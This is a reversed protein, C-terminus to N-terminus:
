WWGTRRHHEDPCHDSRAPRQRRQGGPDRAKAAPSSSDPVAPAIHSNMARAPRAPARRRAPSRRATRRRRAAGIRLPQPGRDHGREGRAPHHGRDDAREGDPATVSCRPQRQTNRPMGTSTTKGSASASGCIRRSADRARRRRARGGRGEVPAPDPEGEAIESPRRAAGTRRGPDAAPERQRGPAAPRRAARARRARAAAARCRGPPARAARPRGAARPRRRAGEDGRLGEHRQHQDGLPPQRRRQGPERERGAATVQASPEHTCDRGRSSGCRSRSIASPMTSTAAAMAAAGSRASRRRAPRSGRRDGPREAAEAHPQDDGRVLTSSSCSEAGSSAPVLEAARCIESPRELTSSSAPPRRPRRPARRRCPRGVRRRRGGAGVRGGEGRHEQRHRRHRQRPSHTAVRTRALLTTGSQRWPHYRKPIAIFRRRRSSWVSARLSRASSSPTLM